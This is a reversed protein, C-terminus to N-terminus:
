ASAPSSTTTDDTSATTATYDPSHFDRAWRLRIRHASNDRYGEGMLVVLDDLLSSYNVPIDDSALLRVIQRLHHPLVDRERGLLQEFRRAAADGRKERLARMSSGLSRHGRRAPQPHTAFLGAVLLWVEQESEPPDHRFVIEYAATQQRSGTLSRRLRALAQRCESQRKPIGSSAGAHLSYLAKVFTDRREAVSTTM